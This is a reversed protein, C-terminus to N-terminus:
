KAEAAAQFGQAVEKAMSKYNDLTVLRGKLTQEDLYPGLRQVFFPRWAEINTGLIERNKATQLKLMGEIDTYLLTEVANGNFTVVKTGKAVEAYAAALKAAVVKSDSIELAWAKVKTPLGEFNGEPLTTPPVPTPNPTPNPRPNVGGVILTRRIVKKPDKEGEPIILLEVEGPTVAEIIWINKAVYSRTEVKGSGDAFKGRLKIPPTEPTILVYGERSALVLCPIDAEIVFWSDDKLETVAAPVIPTVSMPLRIQPEAAYSTSAMLSFILLVLTRM